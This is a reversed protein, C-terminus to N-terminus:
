NVAAAVRQNLPPSNSCTPSRFEAAHRTRVDLFPRLAGFPAIPTGTRGARPIAHVRRQTNGCASSRPSGATQVLLRAESSHAGCSSRSRLLAFRQSATDRAHFRAPMRGWSRRRKLRGDARAGFATALLDPRALGPNRRHTERRVHCSRTSASLPNDSEGPLVEADSAEAASTVDGVEAEGDDAAVHEGGSELQTEPRTREASEAPKLRAALITACVDPIHPLKTRYRGITASRPACDQDGEVLSPLEM